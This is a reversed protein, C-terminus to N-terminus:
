LKTSKNFAKTVAKVFVKNIKDRNADLAPNLFPRKDMSVTGFELWSAYDLSSGVFVSNGDVETVISRVLAGTDTNPAIGPRAAIHDKRGGGNRYRVTHTGFGVEQISQKATTEVLLGGVILADKIEEGFFSELMALNKKLEAMGEVEVTM